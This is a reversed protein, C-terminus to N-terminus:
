GVRRVRECGSGVRDNTNAVITDFGKGCYVTDRAGRADAADIFDDGREGAVLDKRAPSNPPVPQGPRFGTYLDDRGKGGFIRDRGGAGTIVDAGRDGYLYDGHRGGGLYDEGSGGLLLDASRFGYIEDGGGRGFIVDTEKTGGIVSSGDTGEVLDRSEAPPFGEPVRGDQAVAVHAALALALAGAAVLWLVKRWSSGM